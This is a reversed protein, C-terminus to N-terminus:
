NHRALTRPSPGSQSRWFRVCRSRGRGCDECQTGRRQWAIPWPERCGEADLWMLRWLADWGANLMRMPRGGDSGRRPTVLMRMARRAGYPRQWSVRRWCRGWAMETSINRRLARRSANCEWGRIPFKEAPTTKWGTPKRHGMGLSPAAEKTPGGERRQEQRWWTARADTIAILIRRFIDNLSFSASCGFDLTQVVRQCRPLMSRRPKM